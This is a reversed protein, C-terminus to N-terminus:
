ETRDKARAAEKTQWQMNEPRDAGGRKLPMVHDIVYGPCAGKVKGTAPCPYGARFERKAKASRAIRGHKDRSASTAYRSTHKTATLVATPQDTSQALAPLALLCATLAHCIFRQVEM